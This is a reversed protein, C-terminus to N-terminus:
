QTFYRPHVTTNVLMLVGVNHITSSLLIDKVDVVRNVPKSLIGVVLINQCIEAMQVKASILHKVKVIQM